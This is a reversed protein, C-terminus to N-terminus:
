ENEKISWQYPEVPSFTVGSLYKVGKGRFSSEYVLRTHFRIWRVGNKAPMFYEAHNPLYILERTGIDFVWNGTEIASPNITNFEGAYNPPKRSLWDMPNEQSIGNVGPGTGSAMRHGYELMLASQVASVVQQMASKEALEQYVLIRSFLMSAMIAVISIVILLEVLTFGRGKKRRNM